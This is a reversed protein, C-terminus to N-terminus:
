WHLRTVVEENGDGDSTGLMAMPRPTLTRPDNLRQSMFM